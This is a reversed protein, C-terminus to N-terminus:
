TMPGSCPPSACARRRGSAMADLDMVTCMVTWQLLVETAHAPWQAADPHHLESDPDGTRAGSPDQGVPAGIDHLDLRGFPVRAAREEVDEATIERGVRHELQVVPALPGDREVERALAAQRQSMLQHSFRVDEQGVQTWSGQLADPEPGVLHVLAVGAEDVGDDGAVAQLAGFRVAPGVVDGGEPGPGADGLRQTAGTARQGELAAAHAVVGGGHGAGGHDAGGQHFLHAGTPTLDNRGRQEALATVGDTEVEVDHEHPPPDSPM